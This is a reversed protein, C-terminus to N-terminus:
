KLCMQPVCQLHVEIVPAFYSLGAEYTYSNETSEILFMFKNLYPWPLERSLNLACKEGGGTDGAAAPYTVDCSTVDTMVM